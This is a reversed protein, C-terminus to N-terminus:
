FRTTIGVEFGSSKGIDINATRNGLAQDYKGNVQYEGAIYFGTRETLWFKVQAEAYGGPLIKTKTKVATYSIDPTGDPPHLIESATFDTSAVMIAAGASFELEWRRTVRASITPGLRIDYAGGHISWQGDISASNVFTTTTRSHPQSSIAPGSGDSPAVYPATPPTAGDLSYLDTQTILNANISAKVKSDISVFGFAALVGWQVKPGFHGFAREVRVDIGSGAGSNASAGAGSSTASYVHYAIDNPLIQSANTFAWSTTQGNPNGNLDIAVTGDNYRRDSEIGAAVPTQSPPVTGLNGFKVKIGSLHLYGFSFENQSPRLTFALDTEDARVALTTLFCAALACAFKHTLLM